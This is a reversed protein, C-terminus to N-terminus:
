FLKVVIRLLTLFIDKLDANVLHCRFKEAELCLNCIEKWM